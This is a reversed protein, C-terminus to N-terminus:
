KGGEREALAQEAEERTAYIDEYPWRPLVMTPRADPIFRVWEATSDRGYDSITVREIQREQAGVGTIVFGPDGVRFPSVACRGERKARALEAVEAPSLDGAAELLDAAYVCADYIEDGKDNDYYADATKGARRVLLARKVRYSM